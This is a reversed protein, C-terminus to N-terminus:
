DMYLRKEANTIALDYIEADQALEMSIALAEAYSALAEENMYQMREARKELDLRVRRALSV